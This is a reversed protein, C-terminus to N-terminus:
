LSILNKLDDFVSQSVVNQSVLDELQVYPRNTIIDEARKEGIGPLTELESASAQNISILGSQTNAAPASTAQETSSGVEDLAVLRWEEEWAYPLYVKDGDSLEQSLNFTKTLFVQSVDESPGGALELLDAQRSGLDLQYIGPQVVAGSIDVKILGLQNQGTKPLLDAPCSPCYCELMEASARLSDIAPRVIFFAAVILALPLFRFFFRFIAQPWHNISKILM